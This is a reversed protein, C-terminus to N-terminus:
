RGTGKAVERVVFKAGAAETIVNLAVPGLAGELIHRKLLAENVDLYTPALQAKDTALLEVTKKFTTGKAKTLTPLIVPETVLLPAAAEAEAQALLKGAAEAEAQLQQAEIAAQAAAEDAKAAVTLGEMAEVVVAETRPGEAMLPAAALREREAAEFRALETAKQQAEAAARAEAEKRRAEALAADKRAQEERQQRQQERIAEARKEEQLQRFAGMERSLHEQALKAPTIVKDAEAKFAAAM